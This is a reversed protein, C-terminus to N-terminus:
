KCLFYLKVFKVIENLSMLSLHFKCLQLVHEHTFCFRPSLYFVSRKQRYNWINECLFASRFVFRGLIKSVESFKIVNLM